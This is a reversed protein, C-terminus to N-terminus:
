KPETEIFIAAIIKYNTNIVTNDIVYYWANEDEKVSIPLM